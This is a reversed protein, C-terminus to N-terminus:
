SRPELQALLAAALDGMFPYKESRVFQPDQYDSPETEAARCAEAIAHSLPGAAMSSVSSLNPHYGDWVKCTYGNTVVRVGFHAMELPPYSPHPSAMLSVGVSSELLTRAYDELPMKGLSRLSRGQGLSVPDHPTGASIIDWDAFEPYDRAWKQLGRLLAPFCNRNVTPRGYVLIQKKRSAGRVQELFPRLHDNVVPEFVWGREVTHDQRDFYAKLNSSNFIGWLRKPTDYAERALMHGSSFPCTVPEYEQILYILPKPQQGFHDAQASLLAEINLTTWWNYTVFVENQRVAVEDHASKLQQVLIDSPDFGAAAARDTFIGVSTAFDPDTLLLRLQVKRTLGVRRALTLFTDIGTTVGGFAESASLNPIVFTLRAARDPDGVFRYDALVADDIPVPAVSQRLNQVVSKVWGPASQRM